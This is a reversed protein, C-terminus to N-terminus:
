KPEKPEIYRKAQYSLLSGVLAVVDVPAVADSATALKVLTVWVALNTLSLRNNKDLLQLFRAVNKIADKLNLSV